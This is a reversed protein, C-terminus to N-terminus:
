AKDKIKIYYDNVTIKGQKLLRGIAKKFSSKSINFNRMIKQPSSKDGLNIKGGMEILAKYIMDSDPDIEMYSRRKLTLDIKGDEKIKKVKAKIKEGETFAGRMEEFKLLSDYKNDIAVFIGIKKNISYIRGEVSDDEKYPPKENLLKSIYTSGYLRKNEDLFVGIPYVMDKKMKYHKEKNPVLLDFPAKIDVFAGFKTISVVKLNYVKGVEINIDKDARLIGDKDYYLFAEVKDNKSKANIAKKDIVAEGLPTKLYAKSKSFRKISYKEKKELNVM